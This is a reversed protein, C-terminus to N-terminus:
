NPMVFGLNSQDGSIYQTFLFNLFKKELVHRLFDFSCSVSNIALLLQYFLVTLPITNLTFFVELIRDCNQNGLSSKIRKKKM